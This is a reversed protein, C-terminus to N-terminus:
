ADAVFGWLLSKFIHSPFHGGLTLLSGTRFYIFRDQFLHVQGSIPVFNMALGRDM